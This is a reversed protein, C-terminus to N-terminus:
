KGGGGYSGIFRGLFEGTRKFVGGTVETEFKDNIDHLPNPKKGRPNWAAHEKQVKTIIRGITDRIPRSMSVECLWRYQEPTLSITVKKM